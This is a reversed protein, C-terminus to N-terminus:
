FKDDADGIRSANSMTGSAGAQSCTRGTFSQFAHLVIGAYLQEKTVRSADAKRFGTLDKNAM